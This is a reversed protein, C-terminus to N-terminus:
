CIYCSAGAFPYTAPTDSYRIENSTHFHDFAIISIMAFRAEGANRCFTGWVKYCGPRYNCSAVIRWKLSYYYLLFTYELSAYM